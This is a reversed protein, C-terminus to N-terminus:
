RDAAPSRGRLNVGGDVVYIDLPGNASPVAVGATGLKAVKNPGTAVTPAAPATDAALPTGQGFQSLQAETIVFATSSTPPPAAASPAAAAIPAQPMAIYNLSSALVRGADNGLAPVANDPFNPVPTARPLFQQPAVPAETVALASANGPAQAFVYNGLLATLGSATVAYPGPLSGTDAPTSFSWSGTTASALTDGGVFGAV